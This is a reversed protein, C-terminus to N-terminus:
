MHMINPKCAAPSIDQSTFWVTEYNGQDKETKQIKTALGLALLKKVKQYEQEIFHKIPKTQTWIVCVCSANKNDQKWLTSFM